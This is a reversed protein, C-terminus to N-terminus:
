VVARRAKGSAVRAPVQEALRGLEDWNCCDLRHRLLTDFAHPHDPAITAATEYDAIAKDHNGKMEYARARTDYAEAFKPDKAIM